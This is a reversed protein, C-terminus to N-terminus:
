RALAETDGAFWARWVAARAKFVPAREGDTLVRFRKVLLQAM